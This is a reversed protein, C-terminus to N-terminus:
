VCRVYTQRVVGRMAVGEFPYNCPHRSFMPRRDAGAEGGGMAQAGSFAAGAGGQLAQKSSPSLRPPVAMAPPPPPPM